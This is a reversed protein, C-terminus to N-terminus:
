EAAQKAAQPRNPDAVEAYYHWMYEPLEGGAADLFLLCDQEARKMGYKVGHKKAYWELCTRFVHIKNGLLDGVGMHKQLAAFLEEETYSKGNIAIHM